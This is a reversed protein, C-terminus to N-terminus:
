MPVWQGNRFIIRQGTQPNVATQGESYGGPAADFQAVAAPNSTDVLVEGQGLVRYNPDEMSHMESVKGAELIATRLAIDQQDQPLFAIGNIEDAYQPFQQAYGVIRGRRQDYPLKLLDLAAQGFTETERRAQERQQSDLEKWKPFSIAALRRLADQDGGLAADVLQAELQKAQAEQEQAAVQRQRDQMQFAAQPNYFALNRMADTDNPNMALASLANRTEMQGRQQQGAQFGQQVQRGIAAPSILGALANM